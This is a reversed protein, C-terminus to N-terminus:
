ENLNNKATKRLESLQKDKEKIQNQLLDIYKQAQYIDAYLKGIINYLEEM